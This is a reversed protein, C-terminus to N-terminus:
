LPICYNIMFIERKVMIEFKFSLSNNFERANL